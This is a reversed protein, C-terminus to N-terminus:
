QLTVWNQLTDGPAFQDGSCTLPNADRLARPIILSDRSAVGRKVYEGFLADTMVQFYSVMRGQNTPDNVIISIDSWTQNGTHTGLQQGASVPDGVKKSVTMNVHFILFHFAPYADSTIEFKTGGISEQELRFIRGSIPAFIKISAWDTDGAFPMFYHKMSRCHETFDSYDHGASSRFKSISGIRSLEIYDAAVFQPVGDKDIDWVDNGTGAPNDDSNKSCGLVLLVPLCLLWVSSKMKGESSLNKM